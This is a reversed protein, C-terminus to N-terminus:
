TKVFPLETRRDTQRDTKAYVEVIRFDAVEDERKKMTPWYNYNQRGIYESNIEQCLRTLEHQQRDNGMM